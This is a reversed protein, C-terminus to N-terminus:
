DRVDDEGQGKPVDREVGHLPFSRLLDEINMENVGYKGREM